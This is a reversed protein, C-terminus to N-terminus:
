FDFPCPKPAIINEDALYAKDEPTFNCVLSAALELEQCRMRCMDESPASISGCASLNDHKCGGACYYRAICNICTPNCTVPSKLYAERKLDIHFVSGLKYEEKGVFRHCVYVDGAVSVGVLRRGAGCFHSRKSNHLLAVMGRYLGYLASKSKLSNLAETNKSKVSRLWEDAEQELARIFTQTDRAQKGEAPDEEFLSLSAPSITIKTFGIDQMADKVTQPDTNGVLVSHGAVKPVAKLLKKIKPLTSDYSGEGNAYPRQSDQLEKLGDFSVMLSISQEKIFNIIEDNLLTANTIAFVGIEKGAEKTRTKAYEVVAKILPFKLFPEGGFFAIHIKKMKGSKEILWDVAKFATELELSGGTGYEGGDGYCYTCRLNCSQTIFLYMYDIPPDPIVTNVKKERNESILRLEKLIQVTELSLPMESENVLMDLTVATTKDIPSAEMGEINIVYHNGNHHFLHFPLIDKNDM